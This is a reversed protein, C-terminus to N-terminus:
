PDEVKMIAPVPSQIWCKWLRHPQKPIWRSHMTEDISFSMNCSCLYHNTLSNDLYSFCTGNRAPCYCRLSEENQANGLLRQTDGVVRPKASMRHKIVGKVPLIKNFEHRVHMATLHLGVHVLSQVLSGRGEPLHSLSDGYTNVVIFTWGLVLNSCTLMGRETVLGMRTSTPTDGTVVEVLGQVRYQM